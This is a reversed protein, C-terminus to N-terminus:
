DQENVPDSEEDSAEQGRETVDYDGYPEPAPPILVYRDAGGGESERYYYDYKLGDSRYLLKGTKLCTIRLWGM